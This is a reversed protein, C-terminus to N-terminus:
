DVVLKDGRAFERRMQAHGLIDKALVSGDFADLGAGNEVETETEADLGVGSDDLSHLILTNNWGLDEEGEDVYWKGKGSGSSVDSHYSWSDDDTVCWGYDVYRSEYENRAQEEREMSSRENEQNEFEYENVSIVSIGRDDSRGLSASSASSGGPLRSKRRNVLVIKAAGALARLRTGNAKSRSKLNTAFNKMRGSSRPRENRATLSEDEIYIEEEAISPMFSLYRPTVSPTGCMEEYPQRHTLDHHSHNEVVYDINIPTIPSEILAPSSMSRPLLPRNSPIIMDDTFSFREDALRGEKNTTVLNSFHASQADTDPIEDDSNSDAIDDLLMAETYEAHYRNSTSTFYNFHVSDTNEPLYRSHTSAFNNYPLPDTDEALYINPKSAFGNKFPLRPLDDIETALNEHSNIPTNDASFLNM